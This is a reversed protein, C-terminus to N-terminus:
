MDGFKCEQCAGLKLTRVNGDKVIRMYQNGKDFFYVVGIRSVGLNSPQNLLNIGLPGDKFGSM